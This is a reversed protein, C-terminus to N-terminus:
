QEDLLTKDSLSNSYMSILDEKRITEKDNKRIDVVINGDNIIVIRNGYKLAVDLNHTIMLTTIQKKDVLEKTIEMVKEQTNPDLAATHEDLLLVRPNSLTAMYLSVVQRMGGSLSKCERNLSSEIGLGFSSLDSKAKQRIEKVKKRNFFSKIRSALLINEMVSLHPATGKTPDQYVIGIGNMKKNRKNNKDDIYVNGEYDISNSIVNMLTSKGAGNSGLICIFDGDEVSLNFNKLVCKELSSDKNFTVNINELILM